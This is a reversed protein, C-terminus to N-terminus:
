AKMSWRMASASSSRLTSMRRYIQQRSCFHMFRSLGIRLQRDVLRARLQEWALALPQRPGGVMARVGARKLAAMTLSRINSWRGTSLGVAAPSITGLRQRLNRPEAPVMAPDAGLLRCITRLASLMERQRRADLETDAEIRAIVMDLTVMAEQGPSPSHAGGSM